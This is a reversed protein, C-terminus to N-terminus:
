LDDDGKTMTIRMIRTTMRMMSMLFIGITKTRAISNYAANGNDADDHVDDIYDATRM